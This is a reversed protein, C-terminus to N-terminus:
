HKAFRVNNVGTICLKCAVCAGVGDDNVLPIKKTLEPCRPANRGTVDRVIEEAADWTDACAAIKVQPYRRYTKKAKILNYADVSLYVTLNPVNVIQDVWDFSRTYIWFQVEPNLRCTEAIAVAYPKSFIDGDWHWRFVQKEGRWNISKVMEDLLDVMRSVNSGCEQLLDYNHWVLKSVNTYMKQISEAYCVGCWDTMGPCSAGAPLGFSNPVAPKHEKKGKRIYCKSRPSVKRDSSLKLM